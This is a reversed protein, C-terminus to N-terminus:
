RIFVEKGEFRYEKPLRIAQSRGSMFIKATAPM